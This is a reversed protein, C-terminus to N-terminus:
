PFEQEHAPLHRLIRRAAFKNARVDRCLGLLHERINAGHQARGAFAHGIDHPDTYVKGVHVVKLAHVRHVCPLELGRVRRAGGDGNGCQWEAREHLDIETRALQDRRWLSAAASGATVRSLMAAACASMRGNMRRVGMTSTSPASKPSPSKREKRLSSYRCCAPEKLARPAKALRRM